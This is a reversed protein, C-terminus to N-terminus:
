PSYYEKCFNGFEKMDKFASVGSLAVSAIPIVKTGASKAALKVADTKL